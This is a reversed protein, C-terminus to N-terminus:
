MKYDAHTSSWAIKHCSDDITAAVADGSARPGNVYRATVNNGDVSLQAEYGLSDQLRWTGDSAQFVKSIDRGAVCAGIGGSCRWDGALQDASCAFAAAPALTALGLALALFKASM